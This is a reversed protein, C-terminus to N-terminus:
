YICFADDVFKWKHMDEKKVTLYLHSVDEKKVTLYLHSVHEKKVTLYLSVCIKLLLIHTDSV